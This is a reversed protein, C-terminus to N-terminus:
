WHFGSFKGIRWFRLTTYLVALLTITSKSTCSEWKFWCYWIQPLISLCVHIYMYWLYLYGIVCLYYIFLCKLTSMCWLIIKNIKLTSWIDNNDIIKFFLINKGKDNYYEVEGLFVLSSLMLRCYSTHPPSNYIMETNLAIAKGIVNSLNWDNIIYIYFNRTVIALCYEVTIRDKHIINSLDWYDRIFNGSMVNIMSHCGWIMICTGDKGIVRTLYVELLTKINDTDQVVLLVPKEACTDPHDM